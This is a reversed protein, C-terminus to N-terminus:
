VAQPMQAHVDKLMPITLEYPFTMDFNGAIFALVATSRNPIITWEIGDLYPRGPKWYDPNRVIKISQNPKYEVFKFPGTGIPHQRMQAPSVHCPYVPTFGSALLALFSPQPRKLHFTAQTDNDATVHDLNIWWAERANLRLKEKAKGQLLDWTCKVDNATFPKGDHWKVGARLKFTLDKGDESLTWSEALDPVINDLRNQKQKPDFVVLNNFLPMAPMVVSITGEEYISMNAPSDRHLVRLTGGQKQAEAAGGALGASLVIAVMAAIRVLHTMLANGGAGSRRGAFSGAADRPDYCSQLRPKTCGIQRNQM